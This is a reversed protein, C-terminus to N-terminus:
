NKVTMAYGVGRKNEIDLYKNFKKKLNSIANHIQQESTSSGFVKGKIERYNIIEGKKNYLLNLLKYENEQLDTFIKDNVIVKFASDEFTITTELYIKETMDLFEQSIIDAKNTNIILFGYPTTSERTLSASCATDIM